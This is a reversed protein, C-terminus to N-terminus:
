TNTLNEYIKEYALIMPQVGFHARAFERGAAATELAETPHDLLWNLQHRLAKVSGAPVLYGTEGDEIFETLGGTRSAVVVRGAAMAERAVIGLGEWLSPMVLVDHAALLGAVDATAKTLHVRDALALANTMHTLKERDEGNGAITLQWNRHRVQSLARLAIEQGKQKTLRGLILFRIPKSIPNSFHPVPVPLFKALEVGTPIVAAERVGYARRMYAAIAQSLAVYVASYHRLRRRVVDYMFNEVNINHETTVVPVGVRRAALRGWVDAGFLHTHVVDPQLERLKKELDGVLHWSLKGRKPVVYVKVNAPLQAALPIDNCFTIISFRWRARDCHNALEVVMKEAGGFRLTPIIHVIHKPM